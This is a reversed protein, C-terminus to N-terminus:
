GFKTFSKQSFPLMTTDNPIYSSNIDYSKYNPIVKLIDQLINSISSKIIYYVQWENVFRVELKAPHVNVDFYSMPM